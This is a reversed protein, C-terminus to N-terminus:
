YREKLSWYPRKGVRSKNKICLRNKQGREPSQSPQRFRDRVSAYATQIQQGTSYRSLWCLGLGLGMTLIQALQGDANKVPCSLRTLAYVTCNELVHSESCASVDLDLDILFVFKPAPHFDLDILFILEIVHYMDLSIFCEFRPVKSVELDFM